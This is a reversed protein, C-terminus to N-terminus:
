SISDPSGSREAAEESGGVPRGDLADLATDGELEARARELVGELIAEYRRMLSRRRLRLRLGGVRRVFSSTVTTGDGDANFTVTMLSGQLGRRTFEWTLRLPEEVVLVVGDPTDAPDGLFGAVVEEVGCSIHVQREIPELEAPSRRTRM